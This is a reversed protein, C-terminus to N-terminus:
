SKEPANNGSTPISVVEPRTEESMRRIVIPRFPIQRRARRLAEEVTAAQVVIDLGDMGRIRWSGRRGIVRVYRIVGRRGIGEVRFIQLPESPGLKKRQHNLRARSHKTSDRPDKPRM